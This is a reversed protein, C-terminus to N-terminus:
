WAGPSSDNLFEAAESLSPPLGTLDLYARRLLTTRDAEPAPKLGKERLKAVLFADIPNRAGNDPVPRRAPPQFAWYKRAESPIPMDEQAALGSSPPEPAAVNAWVAGQDIWEKIILVQDPNLRGDMPMSPKEAGSVLRYLRSEESKGPVLAPGHEGGRLAAERSRLDLKSLQISAGHCKLCSNQLIPQVDRAFSVPGAARVVAVFVLMVTWQLRMCFRWM